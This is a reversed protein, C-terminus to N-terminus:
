NKTEGMGSLLTLEEAFAPDSAHPSEQALELLTDYDPSTAVLGLAYRSVTGDDDSLLKHILYEDLAVSQQDLHEIAKCRRGTQEQTNIALKLLELISSTKEESPISTSNLAGIPDQDAL